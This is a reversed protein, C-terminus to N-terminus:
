RFTSFTYIIHVSSIGVNKEFCPTFSQTGFDMFNDTRNPLLLSHFLDTNNWNILITIFSVM